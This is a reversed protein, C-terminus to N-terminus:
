RWRLSEVSRKTLFIFCYTFSLFFVLHHIEILGKSFDGYRESLSLFSLIKGATSGVTQSAWGIVYLMLSVVLTVVSAIIQNETLTSIFSGIGVFSLGLLFLGVYGTLISGLEPAPNGYLFLIAPYIFTLGVMVLLFVLSGLFKGWVIQGVTLPATHLLEDTRGKKEEAFLRMTVLPIVFVLIISMNHFLPFMVADNLNLQMAIDPRRYAQYIQLMRNFQTLLNFFFWGALVMYVTLVVYAIPSVFYSYLEKQTVALLKRM